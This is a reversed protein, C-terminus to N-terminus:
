LTRSQQHDAANQQDRALRELYIWPFIGREHGDDFVLQLGYGSPRADLLKVYPSSLPTEGDLKRKRCQACMCASRLLAFPLECVAGDPWRMSLRASAADIAVLEPANM